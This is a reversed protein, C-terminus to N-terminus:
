EPRSLRLDCRILLALTAGIGAFGAFAMLTNRVTSEPDAVRFFEVFGDWSNNKVLWDRQETLLYTSIEQGVQEVCHGRGKEKLYQSVVAGFAMLSVVRGWNTTGDAFLSKAVSSVFSADEREDLTLKKVMGNYAYRHKELVGEVVRMMTSLEKNEKWRLKSLGTYVALFRSILQRTDQDLLEDGAPCSSIDMDNESQLEPTCPLSGDELDESDERLNKPVNYAKATNVGLNIPRKPTDNSGVNGNQSDLSSSMAIEPASDRSDYHMTGGVVGNQFYSMVGTTIAAKKPFM